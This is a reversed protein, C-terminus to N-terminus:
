GYWRTRETKFVEHAYHQKEALIQNRMM